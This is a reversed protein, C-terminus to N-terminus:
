FLSPWFDWFHILIPIILALYTLVVIVWAWEYIVKGPRVLKEGLHGEKATHGFIAWFLPITASWAVMCYICLAGIDYVSQSFLWIVFTMAFVHGLLFLQWFWSKFKAGALIAFGVVVPAFFAALGILPNPFGFLAAQESLMVSKCSIFPSIDCATSAEPNGAVKIRELTLGFSAIWGLIGFGILSFPFLM